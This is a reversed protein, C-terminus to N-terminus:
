DPSLFLWRQFAIGKKKSETVKQPTKETEKRFSPNTSKGWMILLKYLCVGQDWMCLFTQFANTVYKKIFKLCDNSVM